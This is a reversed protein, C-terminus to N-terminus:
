KIFEVKYTGKPNKKDNDLYSWNSSYSLSNLWMELLPENCDKINQNFCKWGEKAPITLYVGKNAIEILKNLIQIHFGRLDDLSPLPQPPFVHDITETCIILDCEKNLDDLERIDFVFVQAKNKLKKKQMNLQQFSLILDM